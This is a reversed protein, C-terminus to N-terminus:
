GYYMLLYIENKELLQVIDERTIKLENVKDVVGRLTPAELVKLQKSM